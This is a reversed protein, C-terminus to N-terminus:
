SQDADASGSRGRLRNQYWRGFLFSHIKKHSLRRVTLDCRQEDAPLTAVRIGQLRQYRQDVLIQAADRLPIERVFPRAM